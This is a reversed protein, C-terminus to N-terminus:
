LFTHIKALCDAVIDGDAQGVIQIRRSRWDLNKVQDTRIVGTFASGSPIEVEYGWGRTTNTIPCIAAFGTVENFEKPSLVIASRRGAQEHGSQPNLNIYVFDGRDPVAM